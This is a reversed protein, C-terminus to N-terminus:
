CRNPVATSCEPCRGSVNGTLDYGCSLCRAARVWEARVLHNISRVYLWAWLLGAAPAAWFLVCFVEDFWPRLPDQPRYDVLFEYAASFVGFLGFAVVLAHLVTAGLWHRPRLRRVGRARPM